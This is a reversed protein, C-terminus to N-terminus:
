NKKGHVDMFDDGQNAHKARMKKEIAQAMKSHSQLVPLTKTAFASIQPDEYSSAKSFLEVTEKHDAVMMDMYLEDIADGSLGKMRTLHMQKEKTLTAPLKLGKNGALSTLEINAKRHDNVMMQAFSKVEANNSKQLVVGGAEVEMMGGIAAKQIFETEHDELKVNTSSVTDILSDAALTTTQENDNSTSNQCASFTVVSVISLISFTKKLM